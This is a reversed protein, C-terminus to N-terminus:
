FLQQFIQNKNSLNFIEGRWHDVQDGKAAADQSAESKGGDGLNSNTEM